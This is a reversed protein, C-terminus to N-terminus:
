KRNISIQNKMSMLLEEDSRIIDLINNFSIDKGLETLMTYIKKANMFDTYTDVTLRLEKFNYLIDPTNLFHLNFIEPNEYIYNTVHEHYVKISTSRKVKILAELTVWEAYLGHHTRIAPSGFIKHSIYDNNSNFGCAILNKVMETDIFPNDSCIRIISDLSYFKGTDIFRQLVDDEDGRFIKVAPFKKTAEVINDDKKSITTAVVILLDQFVNQLREIVIDLITKDEYFPILIKGPFRSSNVRAQIIIGVSKLM